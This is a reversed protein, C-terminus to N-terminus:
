TELKFDLELLFSFWQRSRRHQNMALMLQVLYRQQNVEGQVVVYDELDKVDDRVQRELDYCLEQSRYVIDGDDGCTSCRERGSFFPIRTKGNSCRGEGYSFCPGQNFSWCNKLGHDVHLCACSWYVEFCMTAQRRKIDNVTTPQRLDLAGAM